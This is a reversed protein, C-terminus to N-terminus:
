DNGYRKQSGMGASCDCFVTWPSAVVPVVVVALDTHVVTNGERFIKSLLSPEIRREGDVSIDVSVVHSERIRLPHGAKEGLLHPLLVERLSVWDVSILSEELRYGLEGFEATLRIQILAQVRRALPLKGREEGM